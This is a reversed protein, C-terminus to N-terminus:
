AEFLRLVRSFVSKKLVKVNREDKRLIEGLRDNIEYDGDKNSEENLM